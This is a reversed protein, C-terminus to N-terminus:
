TMYGPNRFEDWVGRWGESAQITLSSRTVQIKPLRNGGDLAGSDDLAEVGADRIVRFQHAGVIEV